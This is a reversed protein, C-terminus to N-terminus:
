ADPQDGVARRIATLLRMSVPSEADFQYLLAEGSAQGYINNCQWCISAECVLGSGVRFRLGYPPIHCRAQQAPPLQRWLSAIAQAAEGALSVSRIAAVRIFDDVRSVAAGSDIVVVDVSTVPPLSAPSYPQVPPGAEICKL